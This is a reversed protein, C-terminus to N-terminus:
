GVIERHKEIVREIAAIEETLREIMDDQAKAVKQEYEAELTGVKARQAEIDRQLADLRNKRNGQARYDGSRNARTWEAAGEIDLQERRAAIRVIEDEIAALAAVHKAEEEVQRRKQLELAKRKDKLAAENVRLEQRSVQRQALDVLLDMRRNAEARSIPETVPMRLQVQQLDAFNAAISIDFGPIMEDAQAPADNAAKPLATVKGM